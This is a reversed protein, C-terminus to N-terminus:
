NLHDNKVFYTSKIFIKRHLLSYALTSLSSNSFRVPAHVKRYDSENALFPDQRNHWRQFQGMTSHVILDYTTKALQRANRDPCYM